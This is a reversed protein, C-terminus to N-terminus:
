TLNKETNKDMIRLNIPRIKYKYKRLILKYYTESTKVKKREIKPPNFKMIQRLTASGGLPTSSCYIKFDVKRCSRTVGGCLLSKM